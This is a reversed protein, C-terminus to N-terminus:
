WANITYNTGIGFSTILDTNGSYKHLFLVELCRKGFHAALLSQVLPMTPSAPHSHSFLSWLSFLLAPLYIITMGVRSSVQLSGKAQPKYFKSYGGFGNGETKGSKQFAMVASMGWDATTPFVLM